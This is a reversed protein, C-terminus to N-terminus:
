FLQLTEALTNEVATLGFSCSASRISPKRGPRSQKTPKSPKTKAAYYDPQTYRTTTLSPLMTSATALSSVPSDGSMPTSRKAALSLRKTTPLKAHQRLMNAHTAPFTLFINVAHNRVLTHVELRLMVEGIGLHYAKAGQRTVRVTTGLSTSGERPERSRTKGSDRRTNVAGAVVRSRSSSCRWSACDYSVTSALNM